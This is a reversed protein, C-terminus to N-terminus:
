YTKANQYPDNQKNGKQNLWKEVMEYSRFCYEPTCYVKGNPNKGIIFDDEKIKQLALILEEAKFEKLRAKIKLEIKPTLKRPEYIGKFIKKYKEFIIYIEKENKENKLEKNNKNTTLEKNARQQSKTLEKGVDKNPYLDEDQHILL